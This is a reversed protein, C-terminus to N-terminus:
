LYMCKTSPRLCINQVSATYQTGQSCRTLVLHIFASTPKGQFCVHVGEQVHTCARMDSVNLCVQEMLSILQMIYPQETIVHKRYLLVGVVPAGTGRLPGHRAYRHYWSCFSLLPCENAHTGSPGSTRASCSQSPSPASCLLHSALAIRSPLLDPLLSQEDVETQLRVSL